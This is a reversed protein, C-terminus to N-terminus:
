QESLSLLARVRECETAEFAHGERHAFHAMRVVRNTNGSTELAREFPRMTSSSGMLVVVGPQLTKLMQFSHANWCQQLMWAPYKNRETACLAVNGVAVRAIELRLSRMRGLYRPNWLNRADTALASWYESLASDTGAAFRTLAHLRLEKYGGDSSAGPNIGVVVVGGPKYEAGISFPQPIGIGARRM